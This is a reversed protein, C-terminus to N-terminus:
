SPRSGGENYRLRFITPHSDASPKLNWAQGQPPYLHTRLLLAIHLHTTPRSPSAPPLAINLSSSHHMPPTHTKRANKLHQAAHPIVLVVSTCTPPHPCSRQELTLLAEQQGEQKDTAQWKPKQRAPSHCGTVPNRAENILGTPCPLRACPLPSANQPSPSALDRWRLM